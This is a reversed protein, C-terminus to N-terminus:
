VLIDSSLLAPTFANDTLASAGQFSLCISSFSFQLLTIFPTTFHIGFQETFKHLSKLPAVPVLKKDNLLLMQRAQFIMTNSFSLLLGKPLNNCSVTVAEILIIIGWCSSLIVFGPSYFKM